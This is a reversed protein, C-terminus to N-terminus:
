LMELEDHLWAQERKMSLQCSMTFNQTERITGIRLLVNTVDTENGKVEPSIVRYSPLNLAALWDNNLKCM